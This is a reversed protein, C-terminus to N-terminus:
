PPDGGRLHTGRRRHGGPRVGAGGDGHRMGPHTIAHATDDQWTTYAARQKGVGDHAPRAM